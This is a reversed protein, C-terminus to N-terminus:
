RNFIKFIDEFPDKESNEKHVTRIIVCKDEGVAMKQDTPQDNEDLLTVMVNGHFVQLTTIYDGYEDKEVTVRFSTGMVAM